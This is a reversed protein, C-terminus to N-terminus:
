PPPLKEGARVALDISSSAHRWVHFSHSCDTLSLICNLIFYVEGEIHNQM